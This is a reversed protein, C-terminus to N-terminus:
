HQLCYLGAVSLQLCANLSWASDLHAGANVMSEYFYPILLLCQLKDINLCARAILLLIELGKFM